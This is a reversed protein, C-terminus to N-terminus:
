ASLDRGVGHPPRGARSALEGPPSSSGPLSPETLELYIAHIVDDISEDVHTVPIRMVRYGNRQLWKDKRNDSEEDHLPGDVEVALRASVCLFDVFYPGVSVQRRFKYEAIQRNRLRSWVRRETETMNTRLFRARYTEPSHM